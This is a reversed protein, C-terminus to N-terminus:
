RLFFLYVLIMLVCSVGPTTTHKVIFIFSKISLVVVITFSLYSFSICVILWSDSEFETNESKGLLGM